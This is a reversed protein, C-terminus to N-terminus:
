KRGDRVRMLPGGGNQPLRNGLGFIIRGIIGQRDGAFDVFARLLKQEPTQPRSAQALFELSTSAQDSPMVMLAYQRSKDELDVFAAVIEEESVPFQKTLRNGLAMTSQDLIVLLNRFIWFRFFSKESNDAVIQQFQDKWADDRVNALVAKLIREAQAARADRDPDSRLREFLWLALALSQHEPLKLQQLEDAIEPPIQTDKLSDTIIRGCEETTLHLPQLSTQGWDGFDVVVTKEKQTPKNIRAKAFGIQQERSMEPFSDWESQSLSSWWAFYKELGDKLQPDKQIAERLAKIERKRDDTQISFEAFSAKVMKQQDEKLERFEAARANLLAHEESSSGVVTVAAASGLAICVVPIVVGNRFDSQSM